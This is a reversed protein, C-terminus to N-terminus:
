RSMPDEISTRQSAYCVSWVALFMAAIVACIVFGNFSFTQIGGLTSIQVVYDPVKVEHGILIPRLLRSSGGAL